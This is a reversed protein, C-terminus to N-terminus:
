CLCISLISADDIKGFDYTLTKRRIEFKKVTGDCSSTFLYKGDETVQMSKINDDHINGFETLIQRNLLSVETLYARMDAMFFSKSDKNFVLCSIYVDIGLDKYDRILQDTEISYEL